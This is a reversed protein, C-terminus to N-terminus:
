EQYRFNREAQPKFLDKSKGEYSHEFVVYIRKCFSQQGRDSVEGGKFVTPWQTASAVM